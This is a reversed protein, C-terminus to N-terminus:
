LDDQEAEIEKIADEFPIPIENTSIAEDFARIDELEEADMMLQNYKEIPLVVAVKQGRDNTLFQKKLATM